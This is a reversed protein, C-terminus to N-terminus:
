EDGGGALLAALDVKSGDWTALWAVLDTLTAGERRPYGPSDFVYDDASSALCGCYSSEDGPIGPRKYVQLAVGDRRDFTAVGDRVGLWDIDHGQPLTNIAAVVELEHIELSM